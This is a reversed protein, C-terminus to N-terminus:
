GIRARFYENEKPTYRLISSIAMPPRVANLHHDLRGLCVMEPSGSFYLCARRPSLRHRRVVQCCLGLSTDCENSSQCEDNYQKKRMMMRPAQCSRRGSGNGSSSSHQSHHYHHRSNLDGNGGGGGGSLEIIDLEGGSASSGELCRLGPSCDDDETCGGGGSQSAMSEFTEVNSGFIPLCTGTMQRMREGSGIGGITSTADVCVSGPCCQESQVCPKNSCTESGAALVADLDLNLLAKSSSGSSGGGNSSGGSSSSSGGKNNNGGSGGSVVVASSGPSVKDSWSAEVVLAGGPQQQQLFFALSVAFLLLVVIPLKTM